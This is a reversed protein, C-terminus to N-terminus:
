WMQLYDHICENSLVQSTRRIEMHWIKLHLALISAPGPSLILYHSIKSVLELLFHLFWSHVIKLPMKSLTPDKKGLYKPATDKPSFFTLMETIWRKWKKNWWINISCRSHVHCQFIAIMLINLLILGLASM